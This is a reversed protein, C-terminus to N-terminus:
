FANDSKSGFALVLPPMSASSRYPTRRKKLHVVKDMPATGMRGPVKARESWTAEAAAAALCLAFIDLMPRAM